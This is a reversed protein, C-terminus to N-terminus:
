KGKKKAADLIDDVDLDFVNIAIFAVLAITGLSLAVQPEFRLSCPGGHLIQILNDLTDKV